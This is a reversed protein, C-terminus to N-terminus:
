FLVPQHVERLDFEEGVSEPYPYRRVGVGLPLDKGVLLENRGPAGEAM